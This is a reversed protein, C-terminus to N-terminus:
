NKTVMALTTHENQTHLTPRKNYNKNYIIPVYYIENENLLILFSHLPCTILNLASSSSLPMFAYYAITSGGTFQSTLTLIWPLNPVLSFWVQPDLILPDKCLHNMCNVQSSGSEHVARIKSPNSCCIASILHHIVILFANALPTVYLSEFFQELTQWKQSEGRIDGCNTIWITWLRSFLHM